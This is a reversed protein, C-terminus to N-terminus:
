LQNVPGLDADESIAMARTADESRPAHHGGHCTMLAQWSVRKKNAGNSFFVILCSVFFCINLESSATRTSQTKPARCRMLMFLKKELADLFDKDSSTLGSQM